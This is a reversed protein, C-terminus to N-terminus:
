PEHEAEEQAEREIMRGLWWGWVFYHFATIFVILGGIILVPLFTGLSIAYLAATAVVALAAALFFSLCSGRRPAPEPRGPLDSM